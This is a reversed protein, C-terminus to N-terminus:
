LIKVLIRGFRRFVKRVHKIDSFWPPNMWCLCITSLMRRIWSSICKTRELSSGPKMRLSSISFAKLLTLYDKRKSTKFINPKELSNMPKILAHILLGHTTTNSFLLDIWNEWLFLPLALIGERTRGIQGLPFHM